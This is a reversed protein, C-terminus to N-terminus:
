GSRRSTTSIAPRSTPSCCTRAPRGGRARHRRAAARRGLTRGAARRDQRALGVWRLMEAVDARIQGEPRGALRLPLAVNDFASLHPLLRFDQFVMGIRRRLVPLRARRARASRPASCAVAPRPDAARGPADAAAPEVERRRVRRAALPLRRGAHRLQPRAAGGVGPRGSRDTDAAWGNRTSGHPAVSGASNHWGLPYPPFLRGASANANPWTAVVADSACSRKNRCLWLMRM